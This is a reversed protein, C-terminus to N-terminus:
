NKKDKKKALDKFVCEIAKLSIGEIKHKENEWKSITFKDSYLLDAFESQTLGYKLRLEKLETGTMIYQTHNKQM